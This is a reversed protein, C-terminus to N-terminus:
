LSFSWGHAPPGPSSRAGPRGFPSTIDAALAFLALFPLFDGMTELRRCAITAATRARPPTPGFRWRSLAASGHRLLDTDREVGHSAVMAGGHDHRAGPDRQFAMRVAFEDQ